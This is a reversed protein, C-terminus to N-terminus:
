TLVDLAAQETVALEDHKGGQDIWQIRACTRGEHWPELHWGAISSDVDDFADPWTLLM